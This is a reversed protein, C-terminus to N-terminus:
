TLFSLTRSSVFRCGPLMFVCLVHFCSMVELLSTSAVLQDFYIQVALLSGCKFFKKADKFFSTVFLQIRVFPSVCCHSLNDRLRRYCLYNVIRNVTAMNAWIIIIASDTPSPALTETTRLRLKTVSTALHVSGTINLPILCQFFVFLFRGHFPSNKLRM